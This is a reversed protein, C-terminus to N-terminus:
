FLIKITLPTTNNTTSKFWLSKQCIALLLKVEYFYRAHDTSLLRFTRSQYPMTSRLKFKNYSCDTKLMSIKQFASLRYPSSSKCNIKFHAPARSQHNNSCVSLYVLPQLNSDHCRMSSKKLTFITSNNSFFSFLHFLPRRHGLFIKFHDLILWVTKHNLYTFPM